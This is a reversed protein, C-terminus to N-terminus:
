RFYYDGNKGYRKKKHFEPSIETEDFNEYLFELAATEDEFWIREDDGNRLVNFDDWEFSDWETLELPLVLDERNKIIVWDM